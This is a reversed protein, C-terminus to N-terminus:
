NEESDFNGLATQVSGDSKKDGLLTHRFEKAKKKGIGPASSLQNETATEFLHVAIKDVQEELWEGKGDPEPNDM